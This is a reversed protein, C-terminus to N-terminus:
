WLADLSTLALGWFLQISFLLSIPVELFLRGVIVVDLYLLPKVSLLKFLPNPLNTVDDLWGSLVFRNVGIGLDYWELRRSGSLISLGTLVVFRGELVFEVNWEWGRLLVECEIDVCDKWFEVYRVDCFWFEIEGVFFLSFLKYEFEDVDEGIGFM